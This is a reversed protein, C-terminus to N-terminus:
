KDEFQKERMRAAMSGAGIFISLAVTPVLMAIPVAIISILLRAFVSDFVFSSLYYALAGATYLLSAGFGWVALRWLVIVAGQSRLTSVSRLIFSLPWLSAHTFYAQCGGHRVYHPQDIIDCSADNWVRLLGIWAYVVFGVIFFDATSM